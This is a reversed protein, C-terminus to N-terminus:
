TGSSDFKLRRVYMVLCNRASDCGQGARSAVGQLPGISQNQQHKKEVGAVREGTERPCVAPRDRRVQLFRPRVAHCNPVRSRADATDAALESQGALQHPKHTCYKCTKTTSDHPNKGRTNWPIDAASKQTRSTSPRHRQECSKRTNKEHRQTNPSRLFPFGQTVVAVATNLYKRQKPRPRGSAVATHGLGGRLRAHRPPVQKSNVATIREAVKPYATDGISRFRKKHRRWRTHM